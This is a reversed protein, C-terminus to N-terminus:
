LLGGQQELFEVTKRNIELTYDEGKYSVTLTKAM